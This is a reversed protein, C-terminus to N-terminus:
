ALWLSSADLGHLVGTKAEVVGEAVKFVANALGFVLSLLAGASGACSHEEACPQLSDMTIGQVTM